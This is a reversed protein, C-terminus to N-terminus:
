RLEFESRTSEAVNGSDGVSYAELWWSYRGPASSPPLTILIERDATRHDAHIAGSADLLQLRFLVDDRASELAEPDATSPSAGVDRYDWRFGLRPPVLTDGPEPQLGSFREAGM